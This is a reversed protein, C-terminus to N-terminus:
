PYREGADSVNDSMPGLDQMLRQMRRVRIARKEASERSPVGTLFPLTFAAKPPPDLIVGEEDILAWRLMAEAIAKAMVGHGQPYGKSKM